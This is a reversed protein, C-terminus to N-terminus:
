RQFIIYSHKQGLIELLTINALTLKQKFFFFLYIFTNIRTSMKGVDYHM